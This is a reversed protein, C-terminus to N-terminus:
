WKFHTLSRSNVTSSVEYQGRSPPPSMRLGVFEVKTTLQRETFCFLPEPWRRRKPAGHDGPHLSAASGVRRQSRPSRLAPPLRADWGRCGQAERGGRGVGLPRQCERGWPSRPVALADGEGFRESLPFYRFVSSHYWVPWGPLTLGAWPQLCLNPLHSRPRPASGHAWPEADRSSKRAPNVGRAAAQAGEARAPAPAAPHPPPM